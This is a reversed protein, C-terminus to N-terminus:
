VAESRRAVLAALSLTLIATDGDELAKLSFTVVGRGPKSSARVADVRIQLSLARGPRWPQLFRVSDIGLGALATGRLLGSDNFLRFATLLSHLGSAVLGGFVSESAARSDLHYPQPDWEKAFAIIDEEGVTVSGTEFQRGVTLDEVYLGVESPQM